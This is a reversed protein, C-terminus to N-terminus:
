TQSDEGPYPRQFQMTHRTVFLTCLVSVVPGDRLMLLAEETGHPFIPSLYRKRTGSLLIHLNLASAGLLYSKPYRNVFQTPWISM